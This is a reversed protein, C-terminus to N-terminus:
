YQDKIFYEELKDNSVLLQIDNMTIIGMQSNMFLDDIETIIEQLMISNRIWEDIYFNIEGSLRDEDCYDVKVQSYLDEKM